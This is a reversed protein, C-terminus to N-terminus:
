TLLTTVSVAAFCMGPVHRKKGSFELSSMTRFTHVSALMSAMWPRFHWGVSGWVSVRMKIRGLSWQEDQFRPDGASYWSYRGDWIPENGRMIDAWLGCGTVAQVLKKALRKRPLHPPRFATTPTEGKERCKAAPAHPLWAQPSRDRFTGV